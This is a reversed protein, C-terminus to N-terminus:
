VYCIMLFCNRLGPGLVLLILILKLYNKLEENQLQNLLLIAFIILFFKLFIFLFPNFSFLFSAIVHKEQLHFFYNAVFSSNADLMHSIIIMLDEKSFFPKTLFIWPSLFIFVYFLPLFNKIPLNILTFSFLFFGILFFVKLYYLNLFKQLLLSLFYSFTLTFLFLVEIWPTVLLISNYIGLDQYVRLASVFFLFPLISFIFFKDIKVKFRKILLYILYISITLLFIYFFTKPLTYGEKLPQFLYELFKEM